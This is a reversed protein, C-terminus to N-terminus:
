VEADNDTRNLWTRGTSELHERYADELGDPVPALVRRGRRNIRYADFCWQPDLSRTGQGASCTLSGDLGAGSITFV